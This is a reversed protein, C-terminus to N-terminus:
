RGRWAKRRPAKVLVVSGNLGTSLMRSRLLPPLLLVILLLLM